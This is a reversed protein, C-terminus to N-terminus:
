RSASWLNFDAALQDFQFKLTKLAQLGLVSARNGVFQHAFVFLIARRVQRISEVANAPEANIDKTLASSAGDDHANNRVVNGAKVIKAQRRRQIFNHM